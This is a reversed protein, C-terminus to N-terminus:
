ITGLANVVKEVLARGEGYLKTKEERTKGNTSWTYQGPQRGKFEERIDKSSPAQILPENKICLNLEENPNNSIHEWICKIGMKRELYQLVTGVIFNVNLTKGNNGTLPECSAEAAGRFLTGREDARGIYVSKRKGNSEYYWEYVGPHPQEPQNPNKFIVMIRMIGREEVEHLPLIM